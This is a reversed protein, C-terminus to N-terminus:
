KFPDSEDIGRVPAPRRKEPTAEDAREPRADRGREESGDESARKPATARRESHAKRNAPAELAM